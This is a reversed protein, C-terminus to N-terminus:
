AHESGQFSCRQFSCRRLVGQDNRCQAALDGHRTQCEAADTGCAQPLPFLKPPRGVACGQEDSAPLQPSSRRGLAKLFNRASFRRKALQKQYDLLCAPPYKVSEKSVDATLFRERLVDRGHCAGFFHKLDRLKKLPPCKGSEAHVHKPHDPLGVWSRDCEQTPMLM